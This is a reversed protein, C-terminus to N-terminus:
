LIPFPTPSSYQFFLHVGPRGASFVRLNLSFVGVWNGPAASAPGGRFGSGVAVFGASAAYTLAALGFRRLRLAQKADLSPPILFAALNMKTIPASRLRIHVQRFAPGPTARRCNRRAGPDHPAPKLLIRPNAPATRVCPWM